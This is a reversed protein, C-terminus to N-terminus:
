SAQEQVTIRAEMTHHEGSQLTFANDAANATEICTMQEWGDPSMDALRSSLESWPNWIVTTKSNRKAVTIHRMRVPDVLTVSHETDLYPRDTEGTLTLVLDNQHKRQFGDTKDIFETDSLGLISIQRADGVTLYSHLAEELHLPTAGLNAVTLQMRLERGLTLQYALQFHDFGLSRSLDNPGLTLTLHLEEGSIAAFTLQWDCIRAFGHSPGDSRPNGPTATRPGFWPFVIPVGGRIPKGPEFLSRESLFLVPGAGAPQWATLHAGQLYLEASCAATAIHARVLGHETTSFSLVGPMAFNDTLNQIDM